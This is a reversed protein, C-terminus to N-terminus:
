SQDKAMKIQNRVVELAFDMDEFMTMGFSTGRKQMTDRYMKAFSNSGVFVLMKINDDNASGDSEKAAEQMIRLMDIFSTKLNKVDCIIYIPEGIEQIYRANEAIVEKFVDVTLDGNYTFLVIPESDNIRESTYVM